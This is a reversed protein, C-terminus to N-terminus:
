FFIVLEDPLEADLLAFLGRQSDLAVGDVEVQGLVLRTQNILSEVNGVFVFLKRRSPKAWSSTM